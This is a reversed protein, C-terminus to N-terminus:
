RDMISQLFKEVEKRLEPNDTEFTIIFRKETSGDKLERDKVISYWEKM